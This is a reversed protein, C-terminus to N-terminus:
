RNAGPDLYKRDGTLLFANTLGVLGYEHQNRNVYTTTDPVRDHVGDTPGDYWKGNKGGITGDLGVKSPIIGGNAGDKWGADLIWAGM